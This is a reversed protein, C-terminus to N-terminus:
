ADGPVARSASSGPRRREEIFQALDSEAVRISGEGLRVHALSEAAILRRVTMQSVKLHAAVDPVTMLHEVESSTTAEDGNAM